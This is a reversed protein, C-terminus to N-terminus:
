SRRERRRRVPRVHRDRELRRRRLRDRPRAAPRDERPDARPGRRRHDAAPRAGARPVAGPRRVLRDRLAHRAVNAVWDRITASVAEKLTRAGADVPAVRAGLLGMRQVNPAQRRMDETGMYVICELGLLACATATAVGHSGAGTEAIIRTKGMRKALLTQGLANNIKHAGTHNLDERKLYVAHGAEESLRAALYLPSPRGVYDNLLADLEARYGPRRPRRAM